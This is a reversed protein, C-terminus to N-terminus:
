DFFEPYNVRLAKRLDEEGRAQIQRVRERTIGLLDACEQLTAEAICDVPITDGPQEPDISVVRRILARKPLVSQKKPSEM